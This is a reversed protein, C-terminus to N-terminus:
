KLRLPEIMEHDKLDLDLDLKVGNIVLSARGDEYSDITYSIYKVGEVEKGNETLVKTGKRTGDSQIKLRM